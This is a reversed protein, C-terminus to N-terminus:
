VLFVASLIFINQGNEADRGFSDLGVVLLALVNVSVFIVLQSLANNLCSKFM